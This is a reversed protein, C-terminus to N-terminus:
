TSSLHQDIAAGGQQQQQQQQQQQKQQQRCPLAEVRDLPRSDAM